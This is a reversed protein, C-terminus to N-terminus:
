AKGVAPESGYIAFTRNECRPLRADGNGNNSSALTNSRSLM